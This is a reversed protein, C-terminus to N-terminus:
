RVPSQVIPEFIQSEIGQLPLLHKGEGLRGPHKHTGALRINLPAIHKDIFTDPRSTSWQGGDLASNLFSQLLVEAVRLATMAHVPVFKGRDQLVSKSVM